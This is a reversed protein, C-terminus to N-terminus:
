SWTFCVWLMGSEGLHQHQCISSVRYMGCLAVLAKAGSFHRRGEICGPVLVLM